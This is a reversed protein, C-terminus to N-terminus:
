STRRPPRLTKQRQPGQGPRPLGEYRWWPPAGEPSLWPDREGAGWYGHTARCWRLALSIREPHRSAARLALKQPITAFLWRLPKVRRTIPQFLKQANNITRRKTELEFTDSRRRWRYGRADAFELVAFASGIVGPELHWAQPLQLSVEDRPRLLQDAVSVDAVSLAQDGNAGEKWRAPQVLTVRQVHIVRDSENLITLQSSELQRGSDSIKRWSSKGSMTVLEAQHRHAEDRLRRRDRLGQWLLFLAILATIVTAIAAAQRFLPRAGIGQRLCTAM